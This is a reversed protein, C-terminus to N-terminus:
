LAALCTAAGVRATVRQGAPDGRVVLYVDAYGRGDTHYSHSDGRTDSVTVTSHPQDSHVYVDYDHYASDYAASVTCWAGSRKPPRRTAPPAAARPQTRSPIGVWKRYAAVWDTATLRQAVALPMRHECVLTHLRDELEDKPNLYFSRPSVREYDAEPWLNRPSDLAGGLSISILHDLEYRHLAHGDYYGYAAIALRKQPETVSESPRVSESWGPICITRDITAQTVDPNIAAPTCAPDPLVFLGTGRPHCSGPPGFGSSQGASVTAWPLTTLGAVLCGIAGALVLM